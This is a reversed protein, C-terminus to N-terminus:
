WDNDCFKKERFSVYMHNGVNEHTEQGCFNPAVGYIYGANTYALIVDMQKYFTLQVEFVIGEQKLLSQNHRNSLVRAVVLGSNSPLQM